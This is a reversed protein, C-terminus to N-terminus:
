EEDGSELIKGRFREGNDSHEEDEEIDVGISPDNEVWWIVWLLALCVPFLLFLWSALAIM